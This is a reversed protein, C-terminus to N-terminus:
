RGCYICTLLVMCSFSSGGFTAITSTSLLLSLLLVVRKQETLLQAITEETVEMGARRNAARGRNIERRALQRRLPNM